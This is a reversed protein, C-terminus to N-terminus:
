IRITITYISYCNAKNGEVCGFSPRCSLPLFMRKMGYLHPQDSSWYPSVLRSWIGLVVKLHLYSAAGNSIFHAFPTLSSETKHITIDTKSRVIGPLYRLIRWCVVPYTADIFVIINRSHYISFSGAWSIGAGTKFISMNNRMYYYFRITFGICFWSM